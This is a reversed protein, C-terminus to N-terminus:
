WNVQVDRRWYRRVVNGGPMAAVLRYLLDWDDNALIRILFVGATYVALGVVIGVVPQVDRL